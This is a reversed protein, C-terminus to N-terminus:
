KKRKEILWEQLIENQYEINDNSRLMTKNLDVISNILKGNITISQQIIDRNKQAEETLYKRFESELAKNEQQGAVVLKMVFKFLTVSVISLGVVMFGVSGYESWFVFANGM